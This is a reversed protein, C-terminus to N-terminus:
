LHPFHKARGGLPEARPFFLREPHPLTGAQIRFGRQWPTALTMGLSTGLELRQFDLQQALQLLARLRGGSWDPALLLVLDDPRQAPQLLLRARLTRPAGVRRASTRAVA